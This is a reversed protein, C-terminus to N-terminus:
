QFPNRQAIVISPITVAVSAHVTAVVPVNM